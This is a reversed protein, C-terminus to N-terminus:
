YNEDLLMSEDLRGENADKIIKMCFNAITDANGKPMHIKLSWVEDDVVTRFSVSYGDFSIAPLGKAKFNDIFLVMMKYLKEAFQNSIPISKKEVKFHKPLEEFYKSYFVKTNSINRNSEYINNKVSRPLSDLLRAPIDIMQRKQEEKVKKIAEEAAERYNSVYKVELVYSSNLSNKIIRFGSPICPNVVSSPDYCFEVLANFDGFILKELDSKSKMNYVAVNMMINNEIRKLFPGSSLCEEAVQSFALTCSLIYLVWTIFIRKMTLANDTM